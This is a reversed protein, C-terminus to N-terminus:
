VAHKKRWKKLGYSEAEAESVMYGLKKEIEGWEGRIARLKVNIESRNLEGDCSLNEPSLEMCLSDLADWLEEETEPMKADPNFIRKRGIKEGDM